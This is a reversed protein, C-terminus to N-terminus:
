GFRGRRRRRRGFIGTNSMSESARAVVPGGPMHRCATGIEVAADPQIEIRLVRTLDAGPRLDLRELVEIVLADDGSSPGFLCTAIEPWCVVVLLERVVPDRTYIATALRLM